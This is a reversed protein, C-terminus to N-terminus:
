KLLSKKFTTEIINIVKPPNNIQIKVKQRRNQNLQHIVVEFDKNEELNIDDSIIDEELNFIDIYEFDEEEILNEDISVEKELHKILIRIYPYLLSLTVYNKGSFKNTLEEFPTLIEIIKPLIEWERSSLMVKKLKRGDKNNEINKDAVLRSPLYVIARKLEILHSLAYFTSNWCTSFDTIPKLISEYNLEEQAKKFHEFQKPSRFFNILRKSRLIIQQLEVSSRLSKNIALQLTHAACAIREINFEEKLLKAAKIINSGNDTTIFTTKYELNWMKIVNVLLECIKKATHPYAVYELSLLAEKIEFNKSIWTCTVGMYGEQARSTWFDTTLSVAILDSKLLDKLNKETNKNAIELYKKITAECPINFDPNLANIFTHFTQKQAIYFPLNNDILCEIFLYVLIEQEQKTLRQRKPFM